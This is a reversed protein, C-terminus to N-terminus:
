AAATALPVAPKNLATLAMQFLLAMITLLTGYFIVLFLDNYALVNAQQTASQGLLALGRADRQAPDTLVRAYVGGYQQIRQAVIPDLLTIGQSIVNSHYQERIAVFTTFVASGLIGGFTQTTLFVTLFSLIYQPGRTLAKTFGNLLAPPLFIGSAIGILGQSLYFQEPRSLATSQSDLWCAIAILILAVLHIAPTRSPKIIMSLVATAAFTAVGIVGFIPILQDNQVNLVTFLGFVGVSQESLLLRFAVLAGAFALMDRSSLWRLDIIPNKRHLEVLVLLVASGIGIALLVGLWPVEFWWYSRGMSLVIAFCGFAITLLPFSVIDDRDFVKMRPPATLPVSFVVGLSLLALGVEVLYLGQWDGLQLLDPSIVRALPLSMSSGLLGFCIGISMKKAPPLWELMYFFALTSLPAAAVGMIARVLIASQLDHTFLHAIVVLVYVLIGIEAFRRLGFQSRVKFMFITGAMNTAFYAAPLWGMEQQTAGFSAQLGPLNATILNLGLGQTIGLLVSSLAYIASWFVSKPVFPPPAAPAAPLAEPKETEAIALSSTDSM